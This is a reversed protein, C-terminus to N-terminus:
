MAEVLINERSERSKFRMWYKRSSFLMVPNVSSEVVTKIQRMNTVNSAGSYVLSSFPRSINVSPDHVQMQCEHIPDVIM